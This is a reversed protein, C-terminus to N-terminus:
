PVSTNVFRPCTKARLRWTQTLVSASCRSAWFCGFVVPKDWLVTLSLLFLSSRHFLMEDSPVWQLAKTEDSKRGDFFTQSYSKQKKKRKTLEKNKIVNDREETKQNWEVQLTIKKTCPKEIDSSQNLSLFRALSALWHNSMTFGNNSWLLFHNKRGFFIDRIVTM